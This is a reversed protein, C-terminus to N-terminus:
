APAPLPGDPDDGEAMRRFFDIVHDAMVFAKNGRYLVPLGERRLTRWAWDGLGLRNRAEKATLLGGPRIEGPPTPSLLGQKSPDRPGSTSAKGM